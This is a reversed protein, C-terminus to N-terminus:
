IDIGSPQRIPRPSWPNLLDMRWTYIILIFVTEENPKIETVDRKIQGNCGYCNCSIHHFTYVQWSAVIRM